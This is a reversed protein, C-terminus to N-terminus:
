GEKDEEGEEEDEEAEPAEEEVAEEVAAEADDVEATIEETALSEEEAALEEADGEEVAVDELVEDVVEAAPAAVAAAAANSGGGRRRGRRTKKKGKSSGEPRVDNYDVLEIMAMPASDGTRQGLRVVRTYGGPRDGVKEAVEGFLETVARKDQLFRFVQRRNHTTDTKARSILPEVYVRLAKAKTVTTTIRKHKILATSMSALTKKRHTDTRNLKFGKKQHRM